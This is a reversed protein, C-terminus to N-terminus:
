SIKVFEIRYVVTKSSQIVGSNPFLQFRFRRKSFSSNKIAYEFGNNVPLVEGEEECFFLSDNIYSQGSDAIYIVIHLTRGGDVEVEYWDRDSVIEGNTLDTYYFLNASTVYDLQSASEKLDNSEYRDRKIPGAVGYSYGSKEFETEGKVKALRYYYFTSDLVDRDLYSVESGKYVLESFSGAAARDRYLLYLDAGPDREWEVLIGNEVAFSAVRPARVSPEYDVRNLLSYLGPSCSFIISLILSICCLKIKNM